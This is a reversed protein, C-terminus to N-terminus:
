EELCYIPLSENRSLCSDTTFNFWQRTGSVRSTAYSFGIEGTTATSSWNACTTAPSGNNGPATAGTFVRFNWYSGSPQLSPGTLLDATNLAALNAAIPL